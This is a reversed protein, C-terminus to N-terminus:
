FLTESRTIADSIEAATDEFDAETLHLMELVGDQLPYNLGDGGLGVGLLLCQVDAIHVLATLLSPEPQSLPDHHFRVCDILPLPLNWKELVRAGAEAHDFGLVAREADMFPLHARVAIQSVKRWETQLYINLVVKGVDHLLGGVFAEEAARYHARRALCQAAYASCFSHRWLDGAGMAYGPLSKDLMDQCSLAMTMNRVTRLGLLVVAETVTAVRRSAGYFASNALKLIRATMAQDASLVRAVDAASARPDDALRMVKVAAEPLAPLDRVQQVLAQLRRDTEGVM